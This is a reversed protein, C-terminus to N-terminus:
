ACALMIGKQEECIAPRAQAVTHTKQLAACPRACQQVSTFRVLRVNGGFQGRSHAKGGGVCLCLECVCAEGM